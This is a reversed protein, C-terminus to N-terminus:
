ATSSISLINKKNSLLIGIYPLAVIQKAMYKGISIQKWNKIIVFLAALFMWTCSKLKESSISCRKMYKNAMQTDDKTFHRGFIKRSKLNPHIIISIYLKKIYELYIYKKLYMNKLHRGGTGTAKKNKYCHRKFLM